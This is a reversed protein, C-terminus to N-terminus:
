SAGGERPPTGEGPPDVPDAEPPDVPDVAVPDIAFPDVAPPDVPSPEVPSVEQAPPAPAPRRSPRIRIAGEERGEEEEEERLRRELADDFGDQDLDEYADEHASDTDAGTGWSGEETEAREPEPANSWSWWWGDPDRLDAEARRPLHRDCSRTPTQWEPFVELRRVPCYETARLGTTPDITVRTVGPPVPFERYGGTPRVARTFRSWLPLAARAGSLRTPANDDYGMWVVTVRGPSYGAFWSDRRDNTTGTKGALPGSVGLRRASAGTGRDLSGQLIATTLYAAHSPLVRRVSPLGDDTLPEGGRDLVAELGHVTPRLGDNALVSYVTALEQPTAEAAGLALSPTTEIPGEIGLRRAYAAIRELGTSLALRVTPVNLSDELASRVTVAGRFRQDNNRPRWRSGSTRVVIPSDRLATAPTALGEAFAAAYIVPKFASGTQRRASAARDFQSVAYDRGGVWALIAGDRPDVSVLAAQLPADRRERRGVRALEREVAQEAAQQDRWRLTSFLLYGEGGIEGLGFREAAEQKARDSFYPALRRVEVTRPDASVPTAQLRRVRQPDAWGLEAMRALVWNRREVAKEPHEVPSYDGPARIMGALTAAEALTLRSPHKGFYAQSAAGIGILNAPGSSGWYIENLYAELIRRKSFRAEVGMAILAEKAKRGLTRRHSLYVNKVLQQTITSGGQQVEGGRLNAWFARAVGSPSIGPHHFFGDDEAALVSRVAHEPLEGLGVPLREEVEPGYYSALLPPEILASPVVRGGSRVEDVRSGAFRVELTQGGALGYRTPFRRLHVLLKGEPRRFTGPPLGRAGAELEEYGAAALEAALEGASRELGPAVEAPRAYLRSAQRFPATPFKGQLSWAYGAGVLLALLLLAGGGWLLALRRPHEPRGVSRLRLLFRHPLRAKANM